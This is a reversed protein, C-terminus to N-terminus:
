AEWLIGRLLAIMGHDYSQPLRECASVSWLAQAGCRELIGCRKSAGALLPKANFVFCDGLFGLQSDRRCLQFEIDPLIVDVSSLRRM